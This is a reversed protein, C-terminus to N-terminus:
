SRPEPANGVLYDLGLLIAFIARQSIFGAKKRFRTKDLARIQDTLAVRDISPNNDEMTIEGATVKILHGRAKEVHRSLPLAVACNGRHYRPLSIIVWIHDGAHEAGVTDTPEPDCWYLSGQTIVTTPSIAM